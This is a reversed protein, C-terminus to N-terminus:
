KGWHIFDVKDKYISSISKTHISFNIISFFFSFTKLTIHRLFLLVFSLTCIFSKTESVCFIYYGHHCLPHCLVYVYKCNTPHIHCVFNTFIIKKKKLQLIISTCYWVVKRRGVIRSIHTRDRPWSSRRSFSIAVWELVRVQFIGHISSRPLGCDKPDCVTPCQTVDSESESSKPTCFHNSIKM